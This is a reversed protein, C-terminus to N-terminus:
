TANDTLLNMDRAGIAFISSVRGLKNARKKRCRLASSQPPPKKADPKNGLAFVM